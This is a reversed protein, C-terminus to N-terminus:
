APRSLAERTAEDAPFFLELRLDRVTVDQSTGFQAVASLLQLRAAPTQLVLPVVPQRARAPHEPYRAAARTLAQLLAHHEPDDGAELAELALRARMEEVMEAHNLIFSAAAPHDTLMRILNLAGGGEPALPALLAEASANLELVTWRRDCLIAPYPAHREMMERLVQRFPELAASHLASAPFAPAFGAARLLSNATGRPLLLGDALTLVMDRSPQARGTELFSIHRASVGCSLALELQSMRRALRFRRLAAPFHADAATAAQAEHM